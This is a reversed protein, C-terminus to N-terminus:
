ESSGSGPRKRRGAVAAAVLAGALVARRIRRRRLARRRAERQEALRLLVRGATDLSRSGSRDALLRTGASLALLKATPTLSPMSSRM